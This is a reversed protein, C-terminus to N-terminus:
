NSYIKFFRKTYITIKSKISMIHQLSEVFTYTSKNRISKIEVFSLSSNKWISIIRITKFNKHLSKSRHNSWSLFRRFSLSIVLFSYFFIYFCYDHILRIQSDVTKRHTKFVLRSQLFFRNISSFSRILVAFRESLYLSKSEVIEIFLHDSRFFRVSWHSHM